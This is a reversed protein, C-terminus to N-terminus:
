FFFIKGPNMTTHFMNKLWSNVWKDSFGLAEFSVPVGVAGEVVAEGM